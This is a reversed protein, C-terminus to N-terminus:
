ATTVPSADRERWADVIAFVGVAAAVALLPTAGLRFRQNGYGLMSQLTAYGLLALTFAAVVRDRRLRWLGVGALAYVVIDFAWGTVLMLRVRSEQVETDISHFPRYLGWTRGARAATVAPLDGAHDRAYRLGRTRLEHAVVSEDGQARQPPDLVCGVQWSGMEPGHYTRACNAGALVTGDNNSLYVHREFTRENRATWPAVVAAAGLLAVAALAARRALSARALFATTVVVFSALLVGESRTLAAAGLSVGLIAWAGARPSAVARRALLISAAVLCVYLSESMLSADASVLMPHLAVIAAALLAVRRGGVHWGILAVLTVLVAGFATTIVRQVLVSDSLRTILSLVL